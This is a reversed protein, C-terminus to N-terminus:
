WYRSQTADITTSGALGKNWVFSFYDVVLARGTFPATGSSDNAIIAAPFMAPFATVTVAPITISPTIFLTPTPIFLSGGNTEQFVTTTTNLPANTSVWGAMTIVSGLSMPIAGDTTSSATPILKTDTVGNSITPTTAPTYSVAMKTVTFTTTATNGGGSLTMKVSGSTAYVMDLRYFTGEVPTIGTNFAGGNTGQINNRTPSAPVPNFCSELWFTTDGISPATTDTDYRVGMFINPRGKQFSIGSTACNASLGIYASMKALSFAAAGAFTTNYPRRFCFVWTFKWGPQDLFASVTDYFAPATSNGSPGPAIFSTLDATNATQFFEFQGYNPPMTPMLFGAGGGGVSNQFFWGLEGVGLGAGAAPAVSGTSFDDRLEIYASDHEWVADGHVLGDTVAAAAPPAPPIAAIAANVIKTSTSQVAANSQPNGQVGLPMISFKPLSSSDYETAVFSTDHQFGPPLSGQLNTPTKNIPVGPPTQGPIIPPVDVPAWNPGLGAEENITNPKEKAM